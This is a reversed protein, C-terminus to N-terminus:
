GMGVAAGSNEALVLGRDRYERLKNRLTRISIGLMRAAHTRNGNVNQLTALILRREMERMSLGAEVMYKGTSFSKFPGELLLHEPLVVEEQCLLIGRQITNELERVNGKWERKVLHEKVESSLRPAPRGVRDAYHEIFYRALLPIDLPRERLPPIMLPIVNVRYFLDERFRGEEVAVALDQNTIAIVRVNVSIPTSGGVRDIIQEQLARLLKAQIPLPTESIEDLVLTGGDALEFRGLKRNLAGTFAGKEHGFLESEALGDPLAACNVAVFPGERRDSREHIFRALLEKGTGSEGYILVTAPSLAINEAVKLTNLFAPDRTVIERCDDFGSHRDRNVEPRMDHHGRSRWREVLAVLHRSDIPRGLYDEAGARMVEMAESVTRQRATFVVPIEAAVGNVTKILESCPMGATATDVLVGLCPTEAVRAAADKGAAVRQVECGTRGLVRDVQSWLESDGGVLLITARRM